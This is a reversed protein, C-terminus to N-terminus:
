ANTAKKQQQKPAAQVSLLQNTAWICSVICSPVDKKEIKKKKNNNNM